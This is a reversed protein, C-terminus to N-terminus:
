LPAIMVAWCPWRERGRRKDGGLSGVLAPELRSSRAEDNSCAFWTARSHRWGSDALGDAACEFLDVWRKGLLQPIPLQSRPVDQIWAVLEVLQSTATGVSANGKRV